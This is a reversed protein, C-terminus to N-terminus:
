IYAMIVQEQADDEATTALHFFKVCFDQEANCLPALENLVLELM